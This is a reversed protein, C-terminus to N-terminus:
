SRPRSNVPHPLNQRFPRVRCARGPGRLSGTYRDEQYRPPLAERRRRGPHRHDGAVLPWGKARRYFLQVDHDLTFGYGGHFQLAAESTARATEAGFLFSMLAWSYADPASVDASWAARWVLLRAGDIATACDALRHQVAQFSGIPVGFQIRQKVYALTLDFARRALGVCCSATCVMWASRAADARAAAQAGVAVVEGVIARDALPLCPLNRPAHAPPDAHEVVLAGDTPRRGVVYSAVAGAPVLRQGAVAFTALSETLGPVARRAAVAEAFPVPALYGGLVEGALALEVLPAELDVVARVEDWLGGDFGLPESGRVRATPCTADLLEMLADRRVAQLTSPELNM